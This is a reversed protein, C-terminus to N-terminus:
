RGAAPPAGTATRGAVLATMATPPGPLTVGLAVLVDTVRPHLDPGLPVGSVHADIAAGLAALASAGTQLRAVVQRLGNPSGSVVGM